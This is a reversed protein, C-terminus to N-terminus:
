PSQELMQRWAEKVDPPVQAHELWRAAGEPDQGRWWNFHDEQLRLRQEPNTVSEAWLGAAVPDFERLNQVLSETAGDHAPGAPQQNVM